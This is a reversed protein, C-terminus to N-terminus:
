SPGTMGSDKGETEGSSDGSEPLDYLYDELEALSNDLHGCKECRVLLDVVFYELDTMAKMKLPSNCSHCVPGLGLVFDNITALAISEDGDEFYELQSLSYNAMLRIDFLPGVCRFETNWRSFLARVVGLIHGLLVPVAKYYREVLDDRADGDLFTFNLNETATRYHKHTTVLHIAQNWTGEM